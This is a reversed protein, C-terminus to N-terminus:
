AHARRKTPPVLRSPKPVYRRRLILTPTKRMDIKVGYGYNQRLGEAWEFLENPKM